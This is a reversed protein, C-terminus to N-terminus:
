SPSATGPNRVPFATGVVATDDTPALHGTEDFSTLTLRTMRIIYDLYLNLCVAVENNQSARWRRSGVGNKRRWQTAKPKRMRSRVPDSLRQMGTYAVM